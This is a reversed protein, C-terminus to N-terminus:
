GGYQRFNISSDSFAFRKSWVRGPGESFVWTSDASCADGSLQALFNSFLIMGFYGSRLLQHNFTLGIVRIDIFFRNM